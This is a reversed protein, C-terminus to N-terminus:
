YFNAFGIFARVDKVNKPKKFYNIVAIKELDAKIGDISIIFNLYKIRKISLELKKINVKYIYEKYELKNKFYIIINDLYATYFNNLYNFLVNNIY